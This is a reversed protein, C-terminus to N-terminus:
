RASCALVRMQGINPNDLHYSLGGMIEESRKVLVNAVVPKLGFDKQLELLFQGEVMKLNSPEIVM